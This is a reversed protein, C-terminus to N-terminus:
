IASEDYLAEPHLLKFHQYFLAGKYLRCAIDEGISHLLINLRSIHVSLHHFKATPNDLTKLLEWRNVPKGSSLRDLIRRQLPTLKFRAYQNM